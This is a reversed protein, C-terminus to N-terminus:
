FATGVLQVLEDLDSNNLAPHQSMLDCQCVTMLLLIFFKM